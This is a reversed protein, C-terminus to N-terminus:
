RPHSELVLTLVYKETARYFDSGAFPRVNPRAPLRALISYNGEALNLIKTGHSPITATTASPGQFSIELQYETQNGVTITGAGAGGRGVVTRQAPPLRNYTERAVPSSLPAANPAPVQVAVTPPPAVLPRDRSPAVPAMTLPLNASQERLNQLRAASMGPISALVTTTTAPDSLLAGRMVSSVAQPGAATAARVAYDVVATRNLQTQNLWNTFAAQESGQAAQLTRLQNVVEAGAGNAIQDRLIAAEIGTRENLVSQMSYLSGALPTTARLFTKRNEYLVAIAILIRGVAATKKLKGGESWAKAADQGLAAVQYLTIIQAAETSNAGGQRAMLRLAEMNLHKVLENGAHLNADLFQSLQGLDQTPQLPFGLTSAAEGGGFPRLAPSAFGAGLPDPRIGNVRSPQTQGQGPPSPPIMGDASSYSQTQSTRSKSGAVSRAPETRKPMETRATESEFARFRRETEEVVQRDLELPPPAPAPGASAEGPLVGSRAGPFGGPASVSQSTSDGVRVGPQSSTVAQWLGRVRGIPSEM